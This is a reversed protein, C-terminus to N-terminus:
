KIIYHKKTRIYEFFNKKLKLLQILKITLASTHSIYKYSSINKM